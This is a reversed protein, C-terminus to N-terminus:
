KITSIINQMMEVMSLANNLKDIPRLKYSVKMEDIFQNFLKPNRTLLKYWHSNERLYKIYNEDEKLKFQIDLTM